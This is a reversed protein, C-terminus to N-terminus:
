ASTVYGTNRPVRCINFVLVFVDLTLIFIQKYHLDKKRTLIGITKLPTSLLSTVVNVLCGILVSMDSPFIETSNFLKVLKSCAICLFIKNKKSIPM